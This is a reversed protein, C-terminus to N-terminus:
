TEALALGFSESITPFIHISAESFYREPISSYGVFNISKELNINHSMLNLEITGTINSIIKLQCKPFRVLIYEMAFIGLEFRKYKNDGRGIMLITQNKLESPIVNKYEYTIFNYMLITNIGWKKLLYDNEFPILSIVYKSNIYSRYINKFSLFNAYLWYFSCTHLYYIVKVNKLKNLQKIENEYYLHYIIINIKKEKIIKIIDNQILIRKINKSIIYENNEKLRRTFLYIKFIKLKYFHNILISTIRARGGNKICYAYLAIRIKKNLLNNFNINLHYQIKLYNKNIEIKNQIYIKKFNIIILIIIPFFIFKIIFLSYNIINIIKIKNNFKLLFKNIMKKFQKNKNM